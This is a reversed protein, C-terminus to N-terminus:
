FELRLRISVHMGLPTNVTLSIIYRDIKEYPCLEFREVKGEEPFM